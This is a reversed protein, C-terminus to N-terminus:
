IMRTSHFRIPSYRLSSWGLPLAFVITLARVERRAHSIKLAFLFISGVVLATGYIIFLVGAWDMSHITGFPDEHKYDSVDM